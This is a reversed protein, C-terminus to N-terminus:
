VSAQKRLSFKNEEGRLLRGINARHRYTASVFLAIAWFGHPWLGRSFPLIVAALLLFVLSGLSVYRTLIIALIGVIGAALAELPAALFLVAISCAVGKGGKFGYFVPWNHGLVAFLGAILGGETGLLARGVLVALAAKCFDGLFTLLGLRAGLVRTMNTAGTSKSGLSRIDIQSRKSLFLGSSFCGLLYGIVACLLYKWIM